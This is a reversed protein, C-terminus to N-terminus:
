PLAGGIFAAGEKAAGKMCTAEPPKVGPNIRVMPGGQIIVDGEESFIRNNKKAQMRIEGAAAIVINPGDLIISAGGTTLTIHKDVMTIGTAPPGADEALTQQAIGAVGGLQPSALQSLLNMPGLESGQFPSGLPSIPVQGLTSGVPESLVSAMQEYASGLGKALPVPLNRAITVSFLQGVFSTDTAGVTTKRDAGIVSVRSQGVTEMESSQVLRTNNGITASSEEGRILTSQNRGVVHMQDNKVLSSWDKEAQMFILERGAADEFRLENFGGTKPSSDSKFTTVTKNEPLKYPVPEAENYVRGVVIPQDPDGDLFSVLVEQGIRPIHMGGYGAGAWGQSVRMWCSSNDDKQGERDWPFQVRVRGYEDTHIEEGGPGVITAVQVGWVRPKPTVQEPRYQTSAFVAEGLVKWTEDETAILEFGSALLTEGLDSRPHEDFAFTVGPSLDIVNSEFTVVRKKLRLAELSVTAQRQGRGEDHRATGKDDATPTGGGTGEDHLFRGPHYVFQEYRAETESSASSTGKLDLSPRRYDHDRYALTGPRVRHRLGIRTAYEIDGGGASTMEDVFPIKAARPERSQPADGLVLQSTGDADDFYYAIGAEELLREFFDYDSEGYQIRLELKPYQGEDLKPTFPIDWEDLLTSVITVISQHLFLRHNRRQSLKWLLPRVVIRYTSLGNPEVRTQAFDVCLGTWRRTTPTIADIPSTVELAAPRGIKSELDIDTSTSRAVIEVEFLENMRDVVHFARVELGEDGGDLEIYVKDKFPNPTSM